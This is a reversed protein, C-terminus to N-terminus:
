KSCPVEENCYPMRERRALFAVRAAEEASEYRGLNHLKNDIRIYAKFKGSEKEFSVGRYGSTNHSPVGKRNQLNQANTVVRLNVRRNDLTDHNIHDVFMRAPNNLLQRHLSPTHGRGARKYFHGHAYLQGNRRNKWPHWSVPLELLQDLDATDILTEYRQGKYNLFIATIDGRLEYDNNM